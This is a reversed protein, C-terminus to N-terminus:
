KCLISLVLCIVHFGTGVLFSFIIPLKPSAFVDLCFQISVPKVSILNLDYHHIGYSLSHIVATTLVGTFLRYSHM